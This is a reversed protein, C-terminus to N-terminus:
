RVKRIGISDSRVEIVNARAESLGLGRENRNHSSKPNIAHILKHCGSRHSVILEAIGKLVRGSWFVNGLGAM